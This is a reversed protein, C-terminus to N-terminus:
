EGEDKVSKKADQEIVSVSINKSEFFFYFCCKQHSPTCQHRRHSTSGKGAGDIERTDDDRRGIYDYRIEPGMVDEERVEILKSGMKIGFVKAM